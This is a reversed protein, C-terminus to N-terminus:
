KYTAIAWCCSCCCTTLASSKRGRNVYTRTLCLYMHM